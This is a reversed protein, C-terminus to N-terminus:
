ISNDAIELIEEMTPLNFYESCLKLFNNTTYKDLFKGAPNYVETQKLFEISEKAFYIKYKITTGDLNNCLIISPYLSSYDFDVCLGFVKTNKMGEIINLGESIINQPDLVIAGKFGEKDDSMSSEGYNMNNNNGMVFGQTQYFDSAFNKLSITKKFVKETKTKTIEALAHMMDTDKNKKELKYLLYVDKINYYVFKFFDTDILTRLDGEESYDLKGDGLEEM